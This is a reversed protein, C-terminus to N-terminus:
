LVFTMMIYTYYADIVYVWDSVDTFEMGDSYMYVVTHQLTNCHTATHQLTDSYVYVVM